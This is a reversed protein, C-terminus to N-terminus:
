PEARLAKLVLDLRSRAVRSATRAPVAPGGSSEPAAIDGWYLVRGAEATGAHLALFEEALRRAEKARRAGAAESRLLDQLAEDYALFARRSTPDGIRVRRDGGCAVSDGTGFCCPCVAIKVTKDLALDRKTGGCWGCDGRTISQVYEAAAEASIGTVEAVRGAAPELGLEAVRDHVWESELVSLSDASLPSQEEGAVVWDFEGRCHACRRSFDRVEERCHPCHARHAEWVVNPRDLALASILLLTSVILLSLMWWRSRVPITM